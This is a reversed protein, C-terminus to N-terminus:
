RVCRWAGYARFTTGRYGAITAHFRRSTVVAYRSRFTTWGHPGVGVVVEVERPFRIVVRVEPKGPSEYWRSTFTTKTCTDGASGPIAWASSTAFPGTVAIDSRPRPACDAPKPFRLRLAAGGLPLQETLRSGGSRYLIGVSTPAGPRALPVASCAALRFVLEVAVMHGPQVRLPTASSAAYPELPIAYGPCSANRPCKPPNWPRLRTGIQHVLTGPPEDATVDDVEIASRTRNRLIIVSAFPQNPIYRLTLGQPGSSLVPYGGSIVGPVLTLAAAVAALMTEIYPGADRITV